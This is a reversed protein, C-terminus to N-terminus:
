LTHGMKMRYYQKAHACLSLLNYQAHPVRAQFEFQHGSHCTNFWCCKFKCMLTYFRVFQVLYKIKFSIFLHHNIIEQLETFLIDGRLIYFLLHTHKMQTVREHKDRNRCWQSTVPADDDSQDASLQTAKIPVCVSVCAPLLHWQAIKTQKYWSSIYYIWLSLSLTHTHTHTHSILNILKHHNLASTM